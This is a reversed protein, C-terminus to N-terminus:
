AAGEREIRRVRFSLEVAPWGTTARQVILKDRPALEDHGVVGYELWPIPNCEKPWYNRIRGTEDIEISVDPGLKQCLHITTSM